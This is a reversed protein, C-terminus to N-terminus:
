MGALIAALFSAAIASVFHTVFFRMVNTIRKKM